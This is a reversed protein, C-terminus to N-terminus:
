LESPDQHGGRRSRSRLANVGGLSADGARRRPLAAGALGNRPRAGGGSSRAFAVDAVAVTARFNRPLARGLVLRGALFGAQGDPRHAVASRASGALRVMPRVSCPAELYLRDGVPVSAAFP